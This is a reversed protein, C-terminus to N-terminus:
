FRGQADPVVLGKDLLVYNRGRYETVMGSIRFRLDRNVGTAAQEMKMLTLNPLIVLPADRLAQGDSDFVFEVQNGDASRVIRGTRDIILSGERLVNTSPVGPAVGPRTTAGVTSANPAELPKGPATSGSGSGLMQDLKSGASNPSTPNSTSPTQASLRLTGAAAILVGLVMTKRVVSSFQMRDSM